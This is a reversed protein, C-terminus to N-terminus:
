QIVQILLYCNPVSCDFFGGIASINIEISPSNSVSNCITSFFNNQFGGVVAGQLPVTYAQGNVKLSLATNTTGATSGSPLILGINVVFPILAKINNLFIPNPTPQINNTSGGSCVQNTSYKVNLFGQTALLDGLENIIIPNALLTNISM